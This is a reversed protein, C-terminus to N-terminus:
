YGNFNKGHLLVVWQGNPKAPAVDMYAMKVPQQEISLTLFKVPYPYVISQSFLLTAFLFSSLLLFTKKM